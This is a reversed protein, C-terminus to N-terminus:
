VDSPLENENTPLDPEVYYRGAKIDELADERTDEIFKRMQESAEEIKLRLEEQLRETKEKDPSSHVIMVQNKGPKYRDSNRSLYYKMAEVKGEKTAAKLLANEVADCANERGEKIARKADKRFSRDNHMWRYFTARVINVSRCSHLISGTKALEEILKERIKGDIM